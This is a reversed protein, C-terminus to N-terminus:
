LSLFIVLLRVIYGRSIELGLDEQRLRVLAPILCTGGHRSVQPSKCQTQDPVSHHVSKDQVEALKPPATPGETDKDESILLCRKNLM